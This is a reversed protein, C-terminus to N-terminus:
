TNYKGILQSRQNIYSNVLLNDWARSATAPATSGTYSFVYKEVSTLDVFHWPLMEVLFVLRNSDYLSLRKRYQEAKKLHKEFIDKFVRISSYYTTNGVTNHHKEVKKDLDPTPKNNGYNYLAMSAEALPSQCKDNTMVSNAAIEFHEIGVIGSSGKIIFYPIESKGEICSKGILM